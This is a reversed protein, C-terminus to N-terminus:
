PDGFFRLLFPEHSGGTHVVRVVYTGTAPLGDDAAVWELGNVVDPEGGRWWGESSRDPAFVEIETEVGDDAASIVAVRQDARLHVPTDQYGGEDLDVAVDGLLPLEEGSAFGIPWGLPGTGPLTTPPSADAPITVAPLAVGSPAHETDGGGPAGDGPDTADAPTPRVTGANSPTTTTTGAVLGGAAGAAGVDGGGDRRAIVGAIAVLVLVAVGAVAAYVAVPVRRGPAGTPPVDPSPADQPDTPQM